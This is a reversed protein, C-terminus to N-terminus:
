GRPAGSSAGLSRGPRNFGSVAPRHQSGSGAGADGSGLGVQTGGTSQIAEAVRQITEDSWTGSCQWSHEGAVVNRLNYAHGAQNSVFLQVGRAEVSVDQISHVVGGDGAQAEDNPPTAM